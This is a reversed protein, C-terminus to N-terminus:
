CIMLQISQRRHTCPFFTINPDPNDWKVGSTTSQFSELPPMSLGYSPGLLSTSFAAPVGVILGKGSSLEKALNVKTGPTTEMLEVSPIADGKKVMKAATSSFNRPLSSSYRLLNCTCFRSKLMSNRSSPLSYTFVTTRFIRSPPAPHSHIPPARTENAGTAGESGM